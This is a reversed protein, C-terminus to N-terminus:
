SFLVIPLNRIMHLLMVMFIASGASKEYIIYSYALLLGTLFAMCQTVFPSHVAGFIVASLVCLCIDNFGFLRRFIKIVAMQFVVTEVFPAVVVFLVADFIFSQEDPIEIIYGDPFYYYLPLLIIVPIYIAVGIVLIFSLLSLGRLKTNIRYFWTRM